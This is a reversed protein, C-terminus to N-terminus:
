EPPADVAIFGNRIKLRHIEHGLISEVSARLLLALEAIKLRNEFRTILSEIRKTLTPNDQIANQNKERELYIVCRLRKLDDPLNLLIKDEPQVPGDLKESIETILKNSLSVANIERWLIEVAPDDLM